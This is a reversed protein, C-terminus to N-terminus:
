KRLSYIFLKMFQDSSFVSRLSIFVYFIIWMTNSINETRISRNFVKVSNYKIGAILAFVISVLTLCGYITVVNPYPFDSSSPCSPLASGLHAYFDDNDDDNSSSQLQMILTEMPTQEFFSSSSSLPPGM